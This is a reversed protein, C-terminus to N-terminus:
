AGTGSSAARRFADRSVPVLDLEDDDDAVSANNALEADIVECMRAITAGQLLLALPVVVGLERRIYGIIRMALLSHGGIDLFGDEVGVRDLRLVDAWIAAVKAEHETRPAVYEKAGRNAAPPRLLSRDVKGNPTLPLQNLRAFVAPVMYAPMRERLHARWQDVQAMPFEDAPPLYVYDRWAKFIGGHSASPPMVNQGRVRDRLLVDVMGLEESLVPIAEYTNDAECVDAPELSHSELNADAIMARLDAVSVSGKSALMTRHAFLDNALRADRVGRVFVAEPDPALSERVDAVTAVHIPAPASKQAANEDKGAVHLVVDYRFKAMETRGRDVKPSITAGTIRPFRTSLVAFFAPDVILETERQMASKARSLVDAVTDRDDARFLAVSSHFLELMRLDRVDGLFLQGGESLLTLAQEIVNVLYDVSPFYQLVSNIIVTDFMGQVKEGIEDARSQVLSVQPMPNANLARQVSALASASFDAGTYHEVDGALRLLLLGTGCGIELIRKPKVARIRDCTRDTWEVMEDRPIPQLTYSSDWGTLNLMPDASETEHVSRGDADIAYTEDFVASWREVTENAALAESAETQNPVLFAVLRKDGAEDAFPEVVVDRVAPHQALVAEIEGLEIRYGRVKVQFDNRGLFELKGDARWRARDGSRYMRANEVSSFPDAVFANATVDPRGLYGRGVGDGAIYLEGVVGIPVPQRHADLVYLQTNAIPRGIRVPGTIPEDHHVFEVCCGVVTETPGYENVHVTDPAHQQWFALSEGLLPEGGIIFKRTCGAVEHESLGHRLLDLHAPTIKVLSFNRYERMAKVLADVGDDDPLLVATRGAVLPVFLSTVTLDFSISSHVPAGMGTRAEYADVAWTLYNVLGRHTVMAGKPKGTSGSTYIVYALDDPTVTKELTAAASAVPAGFIWGNANIAVVNTSKPAGDVLAPQTLLVAVKADDLMFEIRAAPYSADIPIYAAGAKLVALLAVVLESSRTMLVGVLTGARVGRQQLEIALRTSRADLEAYTLRSDGAIVATGEPSEAVAKAFLDAFTASPPYDRATENWSTLLTHKENDPLIRLRSVPTDPSAIAAELLIQFHGILREITSADFLDTRYEALGELGDATERIGFLLEFKANGFDTMPLQVDADGFALKAPNATFTQFNVQFLPAHGENRRDRLELVLKELPVDQHEFAGLCTERVRALLERFTPDDKLSTRLVVLNPFFGVLGQVESMRRTSVPSGVAIDDQGSYRHLLVNFAALLTMFSTTDYDRSLKRVGEAVRAPLVFRQREGKFQPTATRPRDTPLDLSRLGQLHTRWYALQPALEGRELEARQWIAYDAYDIALPALGSPQGAVAASYLAGLERYMVDRSWEDCVIHHSLLLLVHEHESVRILTVRLQSDRALDFTRKSEETLLREVEADAGVGLASVDFQRIPVAAPADIIQQPGDIDGVFRTRLVAHREVLADLATQLAAVSFNGRVRIVRPVNYAILGPIAQDVAWLLEQGFSLPVRAGPTRRAIHTEASQTEANRTDASGTAANRTPAANAAERLKKELLARREPSLQALRAQLADNNLPAEAM